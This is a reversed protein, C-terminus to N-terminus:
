EENAIIENLVPNAISCLNIIFVYILIEIKIKAKHLNVHDYPNHLKQGHVISHREKLVDDIFEEWLTKQSKQKTITADPNYINNTVTYPYKIVNECIHKRLLSKLEEIETKADEFVVDLDSNILSGFFIDLGFRKLITEIISPALNRDVTALFPEVRLNAKSNGFAEKLKERLTNLGKSSYKINSERVIFHESYTAFIKTPITDFTNNYNIDDIIDKCIEKIAGEFHAVLIIHASRCFTPYIKDDNQNEEAFKLLLEVEQFRKEISDLRSFVFTETM